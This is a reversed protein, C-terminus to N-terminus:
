VWGGRRIRDYQAGQDVRLNQQELQQCAAEYKAAYNNGANFENTMGMPNNVRSAIFLLLPELHSYPLEVEYNDPNFGRVNQSIIPHNARFVVSLRTTRLYDPLDVSNAVIEAPVRLTSAVPTTVSFRDGGDNLGLEWGGETFM